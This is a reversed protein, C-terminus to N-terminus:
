DGDVSLTYFTSTSGEIVVVFNQGVARQIQLSGFGCMLEPGGCCADQIYIATSPSVSVRYNTAIQPVYEFAADPNGTGSGCMTSKLGHDFNITAGTNTMATSVQFTNTPCMPVMPCLTAADPNGVQGGGGDSSGSGSGSGGNGGADTLPDFALRGCGALM